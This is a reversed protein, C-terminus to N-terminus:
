IIVNRIKAITPNAANPNITAPIEQIAILNDSYIKSLSYDYSRVNLACVSKLITVDILNHLLM